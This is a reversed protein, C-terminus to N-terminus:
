VDVACLFLVKLTEAKNLSREGFGFANLPKGDPTKYRYGNV